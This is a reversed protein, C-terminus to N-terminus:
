LILKSIFISIKNLMSVELQIVGAAKKTSSTIIYHLVNKESTVFHKKQSSSSKIKIVLILTGVSNRNVEKASYKASHEPINMQMEIKGSVGECM